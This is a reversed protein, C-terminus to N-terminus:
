QGKRRALREEFLRDVEEDSLEELQDVVDAPREIVPETAPASAAQAPILERGIYGALAEVTPYDFLLTSPLTRGLSSALSNRLEVAMLSDLGLENLPQRVDIPRSAPLGLVNVAQERVFELVVRPRGNEPTADLQRLLEPKASPAVPMRDASTKARARALLASLFAPAERSAFQEAYKTWDAPFVAVQAPQEEIVRELVALGGSPDIMGVGKESVRKGVGHRVAAGVESWAGWNISSAPLGQAQRMFALADLFSNAASHNAQGASGFVAAVSSFLVFFDLPRGTSRQHLHWAGSVKPAMVREFRSWDQQVLVGDDLVGASHIIGRLPPLGSLVGDFIARVDAERAVDGRVVAVHAGSAELGALTERAAATPESRGVLVLSRAGRRVLWEAVLLGLGSLGGTVLYTGDGHVGPTGHVVLVKGTHRAQAMFRFAAVADSARFSTAPLPRLTGEAVLRLTDELIARIPAPEYRAMPAWDVITYQVDPRVSEVRERSWGTKGIEVFRGSKTSVGLSAPIFDGALSNLVVDVGSGGTRARIADAFDLSRSSFVHRVGLSELYARKEASGATAFVEAGLRQAIQVAALGVGGAAAHILVREGARLRAVDELAYRATIFAIPVTVAQEVTLAAPKRVVLAAPCTVHTAYSGEAIALVQDGIQLGTVGDGVAVITGACEGGFRAAGGPRVGLADMVDAFNLATASIAIEVEGHAPARREAQLLQLGDFVGRKTTDLRYIAPPQPRTQAAHATLRAAHRRAARLAIQNEHDRSLLEHVLRDLAADSGDIDICRCAMEPHELTVAKALGWIPSQHPAAEDGEGVAHALRTVFTLAPQTKQAALSQALALASGTARRVFQTIASADNSSLPDLSWLHVVGRCTGEAVFRATQERLVAVAGDIDSGPAPADIVLCSGGLARLRDAVVRGTGARDGLILWRGKAADQAARPARAMVIAQLGFLGNRPEPTATADVFGHSSLFSLWAARDLLPYSPRLDRDEFRWWGDTLGFTLDIWRQRENIELMLLQGGPKLLQRVHAFTQALNKTAHLVNAAIIIDFQQGGLGQTAPDREIDLPQYRVFPFEAFKRAARTTFAPSVDTFTYESRDRPLRPLVFSSTSGTGGGIELVQVRGNAPITEAIRSITEGLLQNFARGGRSKEYLAEAMEASGNPFLLSLPDTTGDLVAALHPGVAALMTLEPGLAAGYRAQLDAMGAATDTREPSRVVVWGVDGARLVGIEALMELLRDVLRRQAPVIRLDRAIQDGTVREGARPTWGLTAFAQVVYAASLSEMQPLAEDYLAVGHAAVAEVSREEIAAALTAASPITEVFVAAAASPQERWTVDYLWDGISARQLASHEAKKLRLGAITVVARGDSDRLFVDATVIDASSNAAPRVIAHGWAATSSPGFVHARDLGIPLFSEGARETMLAAGVTQLANDLLVPHVIYRAADGASVPVEIRALAEDACRTLDQIGHFAPGLDLGRAKLESYLADPDVEACRNRIDDLTAADPATTGADRVLRGEAHLNWRPEDAAAASFVRFTARGSDAGSVVVQVTTANGEDLIMAAHLAVDELAHRGQGWVAAASAFALEFFATGPLIVTGHVRHDFIWPHTAVHISADFIADQVVAAHLRRGLLPHTGTSTERARAPVAPRLDTFWYREREFPYTPLAVRQRRHGRDLGAWDVRAGRVYLRSVSDLMQTWDDQNNRLSPIWEAEDEAVCRAAMGLLTPHPGAEVFVGIRRSRMAVVSEAFRVPALIHERWYAPTTIEAATAVRGTVNSIVPIRPAAFAIRHAIATFDDLMPAMLPSHFAHSVTLRKSKVDRATLTALVADMAEGEGSIVTQAPENIAAISLRNSFPRLVDAVLAEDAFVSAMAGDAPLAQMLRGRAAVLMLADDLSMVGAVCAAVYEGLSHGMVADPEIGWSRWLEALAYDVAFMAPQTFATQDVLTADGSQPYLVSILSRGLHPTLIADCQELVRRFTPQTEYLTRGMGAYQAGQGTFLFGVRPREPGDLVGRYLEKASAGERLARLRPEVDAASSARIAARHAFQARGANATYALDAVVLGAGAAAVHDILQDIRTNLAEATRASIAIVHQPRDDAVAPAAAPPADAVLIHANTGSFGFSSVGAVRRRGGRPWARLTTPIDISLDDWDVLPNLTQLHLHPPIADHQLALVIKILGTIGAAAELHGINTKVSAVALRRDDPRTGFVGGLAQVEIPDGLSTGTGHAEIYDVEDPQVGGRALAARIVAEQAPGNPATLGSSPGDQNVASGPIVALIRDADAIADSLRKLVVVGCGEGRGFGDAAADFTKCRGDAALMRSKSFVVGNDPTVIVNVGGALAMRCDGVLLSQCALHVSVLSSSCATDISVAPGQLGLVYSLRGSAVSHAVGSAFHPDIRTVDGAKVLELYDSAAIGVFVGTASGSLSDPAIGAHELAEWCVELLLRQQPDMSLAERPAIGFFQPDFLDIRDLFAGARTYMKGPADPDSDYYEDVNWRDAPTERIPCVGDRLVQWFADPTPAGPMRCGLGIIAIPEHRQKEAADLRAKMEEVALLARKLPSLNAVPDPHSM